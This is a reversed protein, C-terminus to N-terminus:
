KNTLSYCAPIVKGSHVVTGPQIMNGAGVVVGDGSMHGTHSEGAESLEAWTEMWYGPHKDISQGGIELEVSNVFNSGPNSVAAAMRDAAVQECAVDLYMRHILDGNRSITCTVKKAFHIKSDM